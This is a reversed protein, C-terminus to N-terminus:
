RGGQLRFEIRRNVRSATPDDPGVLPRTSGYGEAAVREAAIGHAILYDRVANARQRSLRFNFSPDGRADTHGEVRLRIRPEQQLIRVIRDLIVAAADTIEFSRRQFEITQGSLLTDVEQQAGAVRDSPVTADALKMHDEVPLAGAMARAEDLLRAKVDAGPVDGGLQASRDDLELRGASERGRLLGLMAAAADAWPPLADATADLNDIVAAAGFLDRGRRLLRDRLEASVRGSLRLQGGSVEAVLRNPTSSAPASSAASPAAALNPAPAAAPASPTASASPAPGAPAATAAAPPAATAAEGSAAAPPAATEQSAEADRAALKERIPGLHTSICFWCLVVFATVGAGVVSSQTM